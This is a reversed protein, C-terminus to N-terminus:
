LSLYKFFHDSTSLIITALCNVLSISRPIILVLDMQLGLHIIILAAHVHDGMLAGESILIPEHHNLYHKLDEERDIDNLLANYFSKIGPIEIMM